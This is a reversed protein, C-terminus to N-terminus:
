VEGEFDDFINEDLPEFNIEDPNITPHSDAYRRQKLYEGASM